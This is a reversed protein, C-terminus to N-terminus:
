DDDGEGKKEDKVERSIIRFPLSETGLEYKSLETNLCTIKFLFQQNSPNKTQRSLTKLKFRWKLQGNVMKCRTDSPDFLNQPSHSLDEGKVVDGTSAYCLELKYFVQGSSVLDAETAPKKLLCNHLECIVHVQNRSEVVHVPSGGSGQQIMHPFHYESKKYSHPLEVTKYGPPMCFALAFDDLNRVGPKHLMRLSSTGNKEGENQPMASDGGGNNGRELAAVVRKLRENEKIADDRTSNAQDLERELEKVRGVLEYREANVKQLEASLSTSSMIPQEEAGEVRDEDAESEEDEEGGGEYKELRHEAENRIQQHIDEDEDDDSIGLEEFGLGEWDEQQFHKVCRDYLERTLWMANIEQEMIDNHWETDEESGDADPASADDDDDQNAVSPSDARPRKRPAKGGQYPVTKGVTRQNVVMAEAM